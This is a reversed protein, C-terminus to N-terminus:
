LPLVICAHLQVALFVTYFLIPDDAEIAIKSGKKIKKQKLYNSFVLIKQAFEGYTIHRDRFILADKSPYQKSNELVIKVLSNM